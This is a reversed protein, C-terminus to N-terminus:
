GFKDMDRIFFALLGAVLLAAFFAIVLANFKNKRAPIGFVSIGVGLLILGYIYEMNYFFCPISLLVSFALFSRIGFNQIITKITMMKDTADRYLRGNSPAGRVSGQTRNERM